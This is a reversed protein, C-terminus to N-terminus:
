SEGPCADEEDDGQESQSVYGADSEEYCPDQVGLLLMSAGLCKEVIWARSDASICVRRGRDSGIWVRMSSAAHELGIRADAFLELDASLVNLLKFAAVFSLLSFSQRAVFLKNVVRAATRRSVDVEIARSPRALDLCKAFALAQKLDTPVPGVDIPNVLLPHQARSFNLVASSTSANSSIDLAAEIDAARKMEILLSRATLARSRCGSDPPATLLALDLDDKTSGSPAALKDELHQELVKRLKLSSWWAALAHLPSAIAPDEVVSDMAPDPETREASPRNWALNYLRQVIEDTFVEDSELDLLSALHGPLLDVGTSDTLSEGLMLKHDVRAANWCNRALKASLEETAFWQEYKKAIHWFLVRIHLAKVMLRAPTDELTGSAMLTLVLRSLSIEADGGTLQADLAINWAKTRAAEQEKTAGTLLAYGPWGITSRLSLKLAKLGIAALELLFNHRPVWVTQIATLWAKQRVDIPSALSPAPLLRALTASKKKSKSSSILPSILCVLAGFLLAARLYPIFLRFNSSGESVAGQLASRRLFQLPLASLGRASTDDEDSEKQHFGELIMLGALAGVMLKNMLGHGRGNVMPQHQAPPAQHTPATSYTPYGPMQHAYHGQNVAARHLNMISEPVPIMGQPMIHNAPSGDPTTQPFPDEQYRMGDPTSVATPLHRAGNAALKDYALRAADREDKYQKSLKELHKIYETAKSLVTAKNLKHAPTLGELDEDDDDELQGNPRSLQRLSPVSDRLAAIKDNLNTRYRKEIMNHATKKVPPEKSPKTGSSSTEESSKRKKKNLLSPGEETPSSHSSSASTPMNTASSPSHQGSPTSLPALRSKRFEQESGVPFPSFASISNKQDQTWAPVNSHFSPGSGATFPLGHANGSFHFIENSGQMNNHLSFPPHEDPSASPTDLTHNTRSQNFYSQPEEPKLYCAPGQLNLSGPSHAQSSPDWRMFDEWNNQSFVDATSPGELPNDHPSAVMWPARADGAYVQSPDNMALHADSSSCSSITLAPSPSSSSSLQPQDNLPGVDVGEDDSDPCADPLPQLCQSAASM